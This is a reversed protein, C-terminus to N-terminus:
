LWYVIELTLNLNITRSLQSLQKVSGHFQIADSFKKLLESKDDKDVSKDISKLEYEIDNAISTIYVFAGILASTCCTVYFFLCM